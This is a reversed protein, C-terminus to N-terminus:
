SHQIGATGPASVLVTLLLFVERVSIEVLSAAIMFAVSLWIWRPDALVLSELCM